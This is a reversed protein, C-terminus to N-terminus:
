SLEAMSTLKDLHGDLYCSGFYYVLYEIDGRNEFYQRKPSLGQSELYSDVQGQESKLSSGHADFLLLIRQEDSTIDAVEMKM